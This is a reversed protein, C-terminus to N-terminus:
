TPRHKTTAAQVEYGVLQDTNIGVSSFIITAEGDLYSVTPRPSGDYETVVPQGALGYAEEIKFECYLNNCPRRFQWEVVAAEGRLLREYYRPWTWKMRVAIVRGAAIRSLFHLCGRSTGPRGRSRACSRPQLSVMPALGGRIWRLTELKSMMTRTTREGYCTSEKQASGYKWTAFSLQMGM